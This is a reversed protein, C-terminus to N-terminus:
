DNGFVRDYGYWLGFGKHRECLARYEVSKEDNSPYCGVRVAQDGCHHCRNLIPELIILLLTQKISNAKVNTAVLGLANPTKIFATGTM